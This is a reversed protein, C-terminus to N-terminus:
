AIFSYHPRYYNYVLQKLCLVELLNENKKELKGDKALNKRIVTLIERFCQKEGVTKTLQVPKKSMKFFNKGHADRSKLLAVTSSLVQIFDPFIKGGATKVPFVSVKFERSLLHSVEVRLLIAPSMEMCYKFQM